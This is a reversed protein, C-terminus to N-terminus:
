VLPPITSGLISALVIAAELVSVVTFLGVGLNDLKSQVDPVKAACGGMVADGSGSSNPSSTPPPCPQASRDGPSNWGCCGMFSQLTSRQVESLGSWNGDLTELPTLLAKRAQVMCYFQVLYVLCTLSALLIMNRRRIPKSSLGTMALYIGVVGGTILWGGLWGLSWAFRSAVGFSVKGWIALGSFVFVTGATALIVELMLIVIRLGQSAKSPDSESSKKRWEMTEEDFSWRLDEDSGSPANILTPSRPAPKFNVMIEPQQSADDESLQRHPETKTFVTVPNVPEEPSKADGFPVEEMAQPSSNSTSPPPVMFPNNTLTAATNNELTSSQSQRQVPPPSPPVAYSPPTKAIPGKPNVPESVRREAAEAISKRLAGREALPPDGETARRVNSINNTSSQGDTMMNPESNSLPIPIDAAQIVQEGEAGLEDLGAFSKLIEQHLNKTSSPTSGEPTSM